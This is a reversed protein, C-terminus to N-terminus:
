AKHAQSDAPRSPYYLANMTAREQFDAQTQWLTKVVAASDSLLHHPGISLPWMVEGSEGEQASHLIYM